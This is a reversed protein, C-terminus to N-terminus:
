LPVADRRIEVDRDLLAKASIVDVRTGLLERLDVELDILDLLSSGPEFEVLLDIDSDATDDGRAVSGVVAASRGKHARVLRLIAERQDQLRRHAPRPVTGM